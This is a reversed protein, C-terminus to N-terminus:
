RQGVASLQCRDRLAPTPHEGRCPGRHYRANAAPRPRGTTTFATTSLTEHLSAKGAGQLRKDPDPGTTSRLTTLSGDPARPTFWALGHGVTLDIVSDDGGFQNDVYADAAWDNQWRRGDLLYRFRYVRGIPLSMRAVFGDEGREMPSTVTSWEYFEGVVSIREADAACPVRFTIMVTGDVGPRAEIVAALGWSLVGVM